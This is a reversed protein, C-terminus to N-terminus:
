RSVATSPRRAQSESASAASLEVAAAGVAALALAVVLVLLRRRPRAAPPRTPARLAVTTVPIEIPVGDSLSAAPEASPEAAADPAPPALATEGSGEGLVGEVLHGLAGPAVGTLPDLPMPVQVSVESASPARQERVMRLCRHMTHSEGELLVLEIKAGLNASGDAAAFVRQIRGVGEFVPTRDALQVSFRVMQGPERAQKLAVLMHHEDVVRSFRHIFEAVSQHPTVVRLPRAETSDDQM